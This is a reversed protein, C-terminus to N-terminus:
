SSAPKPSSALVLVTVALKLDAPAPRPELAVTRDLLVNPRVLECPLKHISWGGVTEHDHVGAVSWGAAFRHAQAQPRLRGIALVAGVFASRWSALRM